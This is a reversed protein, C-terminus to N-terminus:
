TFTIFLICTEQFECPVPLNIIADPLFPNLDNHVLMAVATATPHYAFTNDSLHYYPTPPLPTAQVHPVATALIPAAAIIDGSHGHKQAEACQSVAEGRFYFSHMGQEGAIGWTVEGMSLGIKIGIAFDGYRMQMLRVRGQHPAANEYDPFLSQSYFATSLARLAPPHPQDADDPFIATFADGAFSAIFGGRAYVATVLPNFIDALAGALVEAGEKEYQMLTETLSTFGTIDIFLTAAHFRGHWVGQAFQQQIFHPILNKMLAQWRLLFFNM